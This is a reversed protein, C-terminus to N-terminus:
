TSLGKSQVFDETLTYTVETGLNGGQGDPFEVEYACPSGGWVELVVGATGVAISDDDPISRSLLFSDYQKFDPM